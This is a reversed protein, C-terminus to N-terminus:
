RRVVKVKAPPPPRASAADLGLAVGYLWAPVTPDTSRPGPHRRPLGAFGSRGNLDTAAKALATKTLKVEGSALSSAAVTALGQWADPASLHAPIPVAVCGRANAQHALTEGEVLAVVSPPQRAKCRTRLEDVRAAVNPWTEASFDALEWDLCTLPHGYDKAKAWYVVCLRGIEDPVVTAFITECITPFGEEDKLPQIPM